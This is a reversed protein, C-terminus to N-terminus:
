EYRNTDIKQSSDTVAASDFAGASAAAVASAIASQATKRRAVTRLWYGSGITVGGSPWLGPGTTM